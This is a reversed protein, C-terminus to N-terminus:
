NGMQRKKQEAATDREQNGPETPQEEPMMMELQEKNHSDIESVWADVQKDTLDPKLFKIAQKPTMLQLDVWKKTEDLKESDTKLLKMEAFKISFSDIFGETFQRSEKVLNMSSWANQAAKLKKWLSKEVHRYFESQEKRVQTTDGEDMAKAFGSAERGPMMSGISGTQIGESALYASFQFQILQLQGEIEVTPDITGIEPEGDVDSSGGGSGLDLVVDPNLEQDELNTNKTWLISHSLFQVSYNLDTLLKPILISMDMGSQNPYPILMNTSSNIYTQPIEGFPNVGTLGMKLMEENDINGDSTFIIIEGESFAQYVNVTRINNKSQQINKGDSNTTTYDQISKSGLLKIFVTMNMKNQPDDSYPLFLHNPIVRLRQESDEIYPEVACSMMANLLKNSNMMVSDIEAIKTINDMLEIDSPKNTNRIPAEVYVKSKKDTVKKLVNISPIRQLCRNLASASLIEQRLSNEVERKLQGELVNFVRQNYQLFEMNKNLHTLLEPIM